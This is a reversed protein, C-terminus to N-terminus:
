PPFRYSRHPPVFGGIELVVEDGDRLALGRPDGRVPLGNRFLSVAGHFSALRMRGIPLGWVEFLDGLRQRGTFSVVGSPDTTWLRARCHAGAVRGLDFRADRLGIAAPVIVVRRNAFLEVHVRAAGRLPGPVCPGHVAPPPHYRPGVGIPTPVLALM